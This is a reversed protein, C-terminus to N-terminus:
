VVTEAWLGGHDKPSSTLLVAARRRQETLNNQDVTGEGGDLRGRTTRYSNTKGGVEEWLAGGNKFRRGRTRYEPRAEVLPWM